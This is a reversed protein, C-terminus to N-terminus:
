PVHKEGRSLSNETTVDYIRPASNARKLRKIDNRTRSFDRTVVVYCGQRRRKERRRSAGIRRQIVFNRSIRKATTRVFRSGADRLCIIDNRADPMFRPFTSCRIQVNPMGTPLLMQRSREVVKFLNFQMPARARERLSGLWVKKKKQM